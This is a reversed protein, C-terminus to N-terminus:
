IIPVIRRMAVFLFFSSFFVFFGNLHIRLKLVAAGQKGKVLAALALCFKIYGMIFHLSIQAIFGAL